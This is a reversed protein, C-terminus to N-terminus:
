LNLLYMFLKYFGLISVSTMGLILIAVLCGCGIFLCGIIGTDDKFNVKNIKHEM